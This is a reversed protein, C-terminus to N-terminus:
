NIIVIHNIGALQRSAGVGHLLPVSSPGNVISGGISTRIMIFSSKQTENYLDFQLRSHLIFALFIVQFPMGLLILLHPDIGFQEMM